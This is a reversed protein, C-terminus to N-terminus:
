PSKDMALRFGIQLTRTDAPLLLRFTTTATSKPNAYHSGRAVKLGAELTADNGPYLKADSSTWESVNGSMALIGFPSVDPLLAKSTVPLLAGKDGALERTNSLNPEWLAGWPYLRNETGRAAFEWEEETPLRYPKNEKKARWQCYSVADDWTVNIVPQNAAGENGGPWDPPEPHGTAQLFEAYERNTIEYTALWFPAVTVKVPPTELDPIEVGFQDKGGERGMRFEGGPITLMTGPPAPTALDTTPFNATATTNVVKNSNDTIGLYQYLGISIILLLASAGIISGTTVLSPSAAGPIPGNVPPPTTAKAEPLSGMAITGGTIGNNIPNNAPTAGLDKNAGTVRVVTAPTSISENEDNEASAGGIKATLRGPEMLTANDTAAFENTSVKDEIQTRIQQSDLKAIENTKADAIIPIERPILIEGTSREAALRYGIAAALEEALQTATQPRYDPRKDLTRRVVAEVESSAQPLYQLLSPVPEGVQKLAVALPSDGTYPLRGTLMEFIIIGISYIDARADINDSRCQEPSMYQPTGVIMGAETLGVTNNSNQKIKAIGFDLVKVVEVGEQNQLFINDPKLDRHVIGRKHAAEVAGCVQSIIRATETYSIRKEARLRDRLTRGELYEM